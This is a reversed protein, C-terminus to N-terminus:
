SHASRGSTTTHQRRLLAGLAFCCPARLTHKDQRSSHALGDHDAVRHRERDEADFAVLHAAADISRFLDGNVPFLDVLANLADIELRYRM